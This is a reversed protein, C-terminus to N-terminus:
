NKEFIFIPYLVHRQDQLSVRYVDKGSFAFLDVVNKQMDKAVARCDPGTMCM